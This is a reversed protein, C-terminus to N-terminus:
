QCSESSRGSRTKRWYACSQQRDKVFEMPETIHRTARYEDVAARCGSIAGYDDIIVYGGTATKPYLHQLADMTSEYMDGDLRLVALEQIPAVPLTDRFWGPLFQVRDDLLGYRAFNAKVEDLSVAFYDSRWHQDGADHPYRGPDPKPLGNFSDAVWVTRRTDGYVKLMARMFIVAGGRWVGTEIFDGPVNERLVTEICSQLANLRQMGMMTEGSSQSDPQEGADPAPMKALIMRRRALVTRIIDMAARRVTGRPPQIKGVAGPFCSGTLCKKLLDIYMDEANPVLQHETEASMVDAM